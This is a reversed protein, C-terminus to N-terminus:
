PHGQMNHTVLAPNAVVFANSRCRLLPTAASAMALATTMLAASKLVIVTEMSSIWHSSRRLLRQTSIWMFHSVLTQMKSVPLTSTHGFSDLNNRGNQIIKHTPAHSVLIVFLTFASTQHQLNASWSHHCECLSVFCMVILQSTRWSSCFSPTSPLDDRTLLFLSLAAFCLRENSDNKQETLWAAAQPVM